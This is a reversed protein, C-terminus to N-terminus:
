HKFKLHNDLEQMDLHALHQSFIKKAQKVDPRHRRVKFLAYILPLHILTVLIIISIVIQGLIPEIQSPAKLGLIASIFFILFSFYLLIAAKAIM